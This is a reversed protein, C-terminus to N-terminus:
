GGGVLSVIEVTDGDQLTFEDRITHSVLESNVEIACLSTALKLKILLEKLSIEKDYEHSTGNVTIM